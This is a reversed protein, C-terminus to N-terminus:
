DMMQRREDGGGVDCGHVHVLLLLVHGIHRAVSGSPRV